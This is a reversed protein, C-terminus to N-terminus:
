STGEYKQKLVEFTRWEIAAVREAEAQRKVALRFEFQEQTMLGLLVSEEDDPSDEEVEIYRGDYYGGCSLRLFSGDDFALSFGDSFGRGVVATVRKGVITDAEDSKVQRARLDKYEDPTGWRVPETM